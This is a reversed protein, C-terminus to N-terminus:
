KNRTLNWKSLIETERDEKMGAQLSNDNRTQLWDHIEQITEELPRFTLGESLAKDINISTAGKWPKEGESLPYEEPIWLTMETWPAVHNDLLFKEDVWEFEANSGTVKKCTLLFQEMTLPYDPGTTNYTGTGRENMMKLIWRSMDRNDIFQVRRNPNGPALIKGGKAVRHVWYPLRDTYDHAGVLLGARINLVKGDLNKEAEMECLRKFAGYYPRIDADPDQTIKDAEQVSMTQVKYDEKIDLPVWDEYVSISSIFTYQEIHNKLLQTSKRVSIPTQGCTDLVADWNRNELLHLDNNRDGVIIEVDKSLSSNHNGRNFVTVEHNQKLAEDVFTKGLFRSGGIILVKM